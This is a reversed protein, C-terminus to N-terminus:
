NIIKPFLFFFFFIIKLYYNFFIAGPPFPFPPFTAPFDPLPLDVVFLLGVLGVDSPIVLGAILLNALLPPTLLIEEKM